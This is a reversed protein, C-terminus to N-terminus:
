LRVAHVVEVCALVCVCVCVCMCVCVTSSVEQSTTSYVNVAGSGFSWLDHLTGASVCHM